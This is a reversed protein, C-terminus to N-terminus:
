GSRGCCLPNRSVTLGHKADSLFFGARHGPSSASKSM